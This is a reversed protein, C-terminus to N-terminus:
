TDIRFIYYDKIRKFSIEQIYEIYEIYIYIIIKYRYTCARMCVHARTRVCMYVYFTCIYM